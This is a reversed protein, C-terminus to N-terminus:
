GPIRRNHKEEWELREGTPQLIIILRNFLYIDTYLALFRSLMEGFLCIDGRGAFGHSDLTVEIQVGRVLYGQEFRETESHTVDIIAELRRRNMESDTWEYLALTGRLVDANDMMSLFGSGLHSLVRWHFRDQAPPYCPLTPACLNDPGYPLRGLVRPMVLGIYRSDDTDRFSQWKIYEARDFYNSIDKIAAVEEMSEKLFFKPGASGIFPMHAAASVKSINRMLAVDQATADFEYASIVAAIPEGGPTDYEAIYTQKYLGSQVIEASDEFDQRLEEKSLDLIELKVNQRFDTKDVLSKLGRWVSEVKQFADNHMVEDLQRSIQFDLEAIHHDLLTKDLKEVKQGSKHLCQMFVQVAATVREDASTEAMVANDEFGNLGGMEAVPTLNIKDFLSAYVGNQPLMKEVTAARGENQIENNVSM